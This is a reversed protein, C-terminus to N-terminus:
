APSLASAPRNRALLALMGLVALIILAAVAAVVTSRDLHKVIVGAAAWIVAAGYPAWATAPGASAKVLVWAAVGAAFLLLGAGGYEAGPGSNAAGQSILTGALGVFMAANLWGAILGVGPGIVWREFASPERVSFWEAYRLLAAIACAGIAFILVQAPIFLRETFVWTWVTDGIMALGTFWGIRRLLPDAARGPMAQYVAYALLLLFIVGWIAFAYGAPVIPSSFEDSVAGVDAFFGIAIQGVAGVVNLLIRAYDAGTARTETTAASM